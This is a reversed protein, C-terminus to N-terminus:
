SEGAEVDPDTDGILKRYPAIAGADKKREWTQELEAMGIGGPACWPCDTSGPSGFSTAPRQPFVGSGVLNVISGLLERFREDTDDSLVVQIRQQPDPDQCVFWYAAEVVANPQVDSIRGDAVANRAAHAYIPLQLKRASDFPDAETIGKYYDRRGTKYDSIVVRDGDHAVDVRDASGQVRLTRGDPLVIEVPAAAGEFGFALEVEVPMIRRELRFAQDHDLLAVLQQELTDKISGWALPHGTRGELVYRGCEQEFIELLEARDTDTWSHQQEMPVNDRIFRELVEHILKGKDLPSIENDDTEADTEPESVDLVYKMFYQHPCKVYTELRSASVITSTPDPVETGALNGDFRTFQSSRRNLVLDANRAIIEDPLDVLAKGRWDRLRFEQETAPADGRELGDSFSAVRM